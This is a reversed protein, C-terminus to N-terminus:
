SYPPMSPMVHITSGTAIFDNMEISVDETTAKM